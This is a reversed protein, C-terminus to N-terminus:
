SISRGPRPITRGTARPTRVGRAVTAAKVARGATGAVFDAAVQADGVVFVEDEVDGIEAGDLADVEEEFGGGEDAGSVREFEDDEGAFGEGGEVVVEAAQAHAFSEFTGPNVTRMSLVGIAAIVLAIVAGVPILALPVSRATTRQPAAVQPM